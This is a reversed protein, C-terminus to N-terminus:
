SAAPMPSCSVHTREGAEWLKVDMPTGCGACRRVEPWSSLAARSSPSGTPGEAPAKVSNTVEVVERDKGARAKGVHDAEKSTAHGTVNGAVQDTAKSTAHQNAEAAQRDRYQQQNQRKREKLRAVEAASTQYDLFGLIAWGGPNLPRWLDAEVLEDALDRRPGDPHLLRLAKPAVEGDKGYKVSWMLGNIYVRFASDSLEDLVIHGLWQEPLRTDTV